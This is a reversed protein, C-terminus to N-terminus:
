LLKRFGEQEFHHDTTLAEELRHDRMLVFSIADCLTYGKDPRAELLDLAREILSRDVWIVRVEPHDIIRRIFTIAHVRNLRRAAALAQFEALV